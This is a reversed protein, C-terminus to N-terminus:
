NMGMAYQSFHTLWGVVYFRGPEITTPVPILEGNPDSDKLWLVVLRHAQSPPVLLLLYNLKLQLALPFQSVTAGTAIDRAELDVIVSNSFATTMKFRTRGSVANRPVILQHLGLVLTGGERGIVASNSFTISTPSQVIRLTGWNYVYDDNRLPAETPSKSDCGAFLLAACITAFAYRKMGQKAM